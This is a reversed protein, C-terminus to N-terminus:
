TRAKVLHKLGIYTDGIRDLRGQRNKDAIQNEGLDRLGFLLKDGSNVYVRRRYSAHALGHRDTQVIDYM